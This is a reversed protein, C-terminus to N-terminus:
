QITSFKRPDLNKHIAIKSSKTSITKRIQQMRVSCAMHWFNENFYKRSHNFIQLIRSILSRCFYLAICYQRSHRINNHDTNLWHHFVSGLPHLVTRHMGRPVQHLILGGRGRCCGWSTYVQSRTNASWCTHTQYILLTCSSITLRTRLGSGM